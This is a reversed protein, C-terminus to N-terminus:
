AAGGAAIKAREAQYGESLECIFAGLAEHRGAQMLGSVQARGAPGLEGLAECFNEWDSPDYDPDQAIQQWRMEFSDARDSARQNKAAQAAAWVDSLNSM